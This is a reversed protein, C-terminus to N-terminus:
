NEKGMAVLRPAKSDCALDLHIITLPGVIGDPVLNREFQFQKVQSVLVDDYPVPKKTSVPRKQILALKKDLWEVRAAHNEPTIATVYGEPKKWLLIYEGNWRAKFDEISVRKHETGFVLEVSQGDYSVITAYYRAGRKDYLTLIAPSNLALLNAFSGAQQLYQLKHSEAIARASVLDKPVQTIGWNALLAQYAMVKTAAPPVGEPRTLPSLALPPKSDAAAGIEAAPAGDEPAASPQPVAEIDGALPAESLQPVVKIDEALPAESLQPIVKIDEALPAESQRPVAQMDEARPTEQAPRHSPFSEAEKEPQTIAVLRAMLGQFFSTDPTQTLYAAALVSGGLLLLLGAILMASKKVTYAPRDATKGFVERAAKKITAIDVMDQNQVYAGLLARDCIINLLRPTGNTLKFLTKMTSEPFIKRRAGNIALRHDIYSGVESESLPTLHYRATIRQALQRLGPQELMHILEPQGLLIIQLLKRKNTELNTLLRIQELVDTSLNQAEDIILVAKRGKAHSQLLFSNIHDVYFKISHQEKQHHIGFEDCITALLEEVTLKPNFIFAIDTNEPVQELLCRCITTKGTGVEGTLMVFGGDVRMGYFLHALAEKHRESMYLSHPDPAISFPAATFGFHEQYM